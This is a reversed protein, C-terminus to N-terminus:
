PLVELSELLVGGAVGDVKVIVSHGGIVWAESRTKTEVGERLPKILKYRMVKTGIPNKNNWFDAQKQLLFQRIKSQKM